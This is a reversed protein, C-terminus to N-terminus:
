FRKAKKVTTQIATGVSDSDALGVREVLRGIAQATMVVSIVGLLMALGGFLAIALISAIVAPVFM